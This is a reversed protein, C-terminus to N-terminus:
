FRFSPRLPGLGFSPAGEHNYFYHPYRQLGGGGVQRSTRWLRCGEGVAQDVERQSYKNRGCTAVSAGLGWASVAAATALLALLIMAITSRLNRMAFRRNFSFGGTLCTHYFTISPAFEPPLPLYIRLRTAHPLSLAHSRQNSKPQFFLNPERVSTRSVYLRYDGPGLNNAMAEFIDQRVRTLVHRVDKQIHM